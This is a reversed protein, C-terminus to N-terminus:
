KKPPTKPLAASSTQGRWGRGHSVAAEGFRGRLVDIATQRALRRPTQVDALDGQDALTAAALPAAGIGILRFRTGDVERLLMARAAEFLTEPLQTPNGLRQSRTRSQFGATKLKLIIGAAALEEARLRAGLKETLRWLPAELEALGALDDSFTTEASLSRTDRDIRVLRRDEGRARASLAPGDPGLKQAAARDGLAALQGVTLIGMGGLRKALAPGVGPLVSVSEPALIGPAEAGFVFFGRPKGREAALKALLRNPGLGISVSVGIEQEVLRAFRSLVIAPPADHVAQTGALDVVAEDISLPQVLPTLDDMLARIQRSVAAYKAMDPRIIVASPCLARAKFMPMASRVGYLRAVYCCTTVVGREGGGVILPLDRLEPRDRKEVSAYFADCDIHGITLEFLEPHRVIRVGGCIDCDAGAVTADCDRCFAPVATVDSSNPM